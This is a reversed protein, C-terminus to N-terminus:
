RSGGMGGPGGGFRCENGRHPDLPASGAPCVRRIPDPLSDSWRHPTQVDIGADETLTEGLLSTLGRSLTVRYRTGPRVDADIRVTNADFPRVDLVQIPPDIRLHGGLAEPDVPGALTLAFGKLDATISRPAPAGYTEFAIRAPLKMRVDTSLFPMGAGIEVEYKQGGRLRTMPAVALIRAKGDRREDKPLLQAVATSDPEIRKLQIARLCWGSPGLRGSRPRSSSQLPLLAAGRPRVDAQGRAREAGAAAPRVVIEWVFDATTEKGDYSRSGKPIRCVLRTGAPIEGRPIFSLARTGIWSFSGPVAPTIELPVSEKGRIRGGLPIMAESFVVDIAHLSETDGRPTVM